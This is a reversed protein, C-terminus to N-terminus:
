LLGKAEACGPCCDQGDLDRWEERAIMQSLREDSDEWDTFCEAEGCFDCELTVTRASM